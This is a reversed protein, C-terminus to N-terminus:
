GPSSRGGRDLGLACGIMLQVSVPLSSVSDIM